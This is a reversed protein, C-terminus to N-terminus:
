DPRKAGHLAQWEEMADACTHAEEIKKRPVGAAHATYAWRRVIAPALQDQARLVFIPESDGARKLCEDDHKTAM